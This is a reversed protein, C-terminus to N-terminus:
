DPASQHPKQPGEGWLSGLFCYYVTSERALLPAIRELAFETLVSETKVSNARPAKKNLTPMSNALAQPQQVRYVTPMALRRINATIGAKM